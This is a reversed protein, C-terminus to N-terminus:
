AHEFPSVGPIHFAFFLLRERWIKPIKKRIMFIDQVVPMFTAIRMAHLMKKTSKGADRERPRGVSRVRPSGNPQDRAM